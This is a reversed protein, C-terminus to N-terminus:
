SVWSYKIRYLVSCRFLLLNKPTEVSLGRLSRLASLHWFSCGSPLFFSGHTTCADHGVRISPLGAVRSLGQGPFARSPGVSCPPAGGCLCLGVCSVGDAQERLGRLEKSNPGFSFASFATEFQDEEQSRPSDLFGNIRWLGMGFHRGRYSSWEEERLRFGTWRNTGLLLDAPYM